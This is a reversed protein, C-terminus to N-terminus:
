CFYPGLIIKGLKSEIIGAEFDLFANIIQVPGIDISYNWRSITSALTAIFLGLGQLRGSTTLPGITINLFMSTCYAVSLVCQLRFITLVFRSKIKRLRRSKEVKFPICQLLNCIRFHFKLLPFFQARYMANAQSTRLTTPSSM